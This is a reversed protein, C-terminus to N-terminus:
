PVTFPNKVVKLGIGLECRYGKLYCHHLYRGKGHLSIIERITESLDEIGRLLSDAKSIYILQTKTVFESQRTGM